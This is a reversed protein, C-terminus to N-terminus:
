AGARHFQVGVFMAVVNSGGAAGGSGEDAHDGRRSADGDFVSKPPPVLGLAVPDFELLHTSYTLPRAFSLCHQHM